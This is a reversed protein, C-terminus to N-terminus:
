AAKSWVDFDLSASYFEEAGTKEHVTGRDDQLQILRFDTTGQIGSYPHLLGGTGHTGILVNRIAIVKGYAAQGDLVKARIDIQMTSRTLGDSGQMHLGTNGTVKTFRMAPSAAAQAYVVPYIRAVPVLATLAAHGTLIGFFDNEM